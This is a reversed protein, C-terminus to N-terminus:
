NNYSITKREKKENLGGFTCSAPERELVRRVTSKIYADSVKGTGMGGERGDGSPIEMQISGEWWSCQFFDEVEQGYSMRDLSLEVRNPRRQSKAENIKM